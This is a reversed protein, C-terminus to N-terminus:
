KILLSTTYLTLIEEPTPAVLSGNINKAQTAFTTYKKLEAETFNEKTGLLHDIIQHLQSVSTCGAATLVEQVEQPHKKALYDLFATLTLANARGHDIHRFYTLSYGLSHVINTGTHAIAIGGILSGYVLKERDNPTLKGQTMAPFCDSIKKIANKALGAILPNSKQSLLSEVNHSFADLATNITIPLPLEKQYKADLLAYRPFILPTAITRKTQAKDDSLISYQTVESGTGATTPIHILPLVKPAYKGAFLSEEAIDQAALLAIAKAADMPSGGGIAIIFDAQQQRAFEAGKYVTTIDPNSSVKDFIAYAIGQRKLISLVDAQAGNKKASSHGTVLLAKKGLAFADSHNAICNNELFIKTPLYFSIAPM